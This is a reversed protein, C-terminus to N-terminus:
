YGSHTHELLPTITSSYQLISCVLSTIKGSHVSVDETNQLVYGEIHYGKLIQHREDIISISHPTFTM